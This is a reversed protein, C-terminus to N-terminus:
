EGLSGPYGAERLTDLIVSQDADGEITALASELNVEASRIGPIAELAKKVASVCGMCQMNEINYTRRM